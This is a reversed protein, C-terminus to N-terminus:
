ATKKQMALVAGVLAVLVGVAAGAIQKFGFANAQGLGLADAGLAVVLIVVGAALLIFGLTRKNQM